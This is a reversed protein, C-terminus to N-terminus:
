GSCTISSLDDEHDSKRPCVSWEVARLQASVRMRVVLVRFRLEQSCQPAAHMWQLWYVGTPFRRRPAQLNPHRRFGGIM